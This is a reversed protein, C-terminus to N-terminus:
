ARVEFFVAGRKRYTIEQPPAVNGGRLHGVIDAWNLGLAACRRRAKTAVWGKAHYPSLYETVIGGGLLHYAIEVANATNRASISAVRSTKWAEEVGKKAKAEERHLALKNNPDVLEQGCHTCERASLSNEGECKPCARSDWRHTCRDVSRPTVVMGNCRQGFHAPKQNGYDDTIRLGLTSLFYGDGDIHYNDPNPKLAFQNNHGCVPCVVDVKEGGGSKVVTIDPDFVDGSSAHREFNEAYDLIMVEDKGDHLRLGRGIIQLLLGPSETARLIAVTGVNPADFGTTLVSVNVLYRVEGARFQRLIRERDTKKTAGTVLETHQEPLSECIEVAHNISAAFFMVGLGAKSRGVVDAVIAATLRGKGEFVDAIEGDDFKGRSNAELGAAAYHVGASYLAPQTLFGRDILERTSARYVLKDFFAAATTMGPHVPESDVGIKYIYGEGTRYPTATMGIVRLNPNSQRMRGVIERITPTTQHCEDIIVAAFGDLFSDIGNLVSLPTGFVVNHRTSKVGVSASYFSASNGTHTFKEFNQEVLEKSPALVLTKKGSMKLINDALAAAIWSKGGGTAADILCSTTSKRIHLLVADVADQQYDRLQYAM